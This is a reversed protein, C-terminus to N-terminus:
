RARKMKIKFRRRHRGRCARRYWVNDFHEEFMDAVEAILLLGVMIALGLLALEYEGMLAAFASALGIWLM